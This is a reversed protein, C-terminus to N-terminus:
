NRPARSGSSSRCSWWPLHRYFNRNGTRCRDFWFPASVLHEWLNVGPEGHALADLNAADTSYKLHLVFSIVFLMGLAIGLSYSYLGRLLAGHRVPWPAALDRRRGAPDEDVESSADPDKSEASGRQYLFATLVVFASMQLFESEWNEFVASLFHGSVAYVTLSLAAAGHHAAEDNFASWGTLLMGALMLMSALALVISLGNNRWVSM